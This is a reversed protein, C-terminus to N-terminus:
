EKTELDDELADASSYLCELRLRVKLGNDAASFFLDNFVPATQVGSRLCFVVDIVIQRESVLLKQIGENPGFHVDSRKMLRETAIPSFLRRLSELATTKGSGNNGVFGMIGPNMSITVPEDGFCRFNRLTLSEIHM